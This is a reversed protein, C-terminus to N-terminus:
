VGQYLRDPPVDPEAHAYDFEVRYALSWPLLATVRNATVIALLRDSPIYYPTQPDFVIHVGDFDPASVSTTYSVDLEQPDPAAQNRSLSVIRTSLLTADSESDNWIATVRYVLLDQTYNNM